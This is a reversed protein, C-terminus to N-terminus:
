EMENFKGKIDSKEDLYNKVDFGSEALCGKMVKLDSPKEAKKSEEDSLGTGNMLVLAQVVADDESKSESAEFIQGAM